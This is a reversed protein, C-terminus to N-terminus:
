LLKYFSQFDRKVPFPLALVTFFLYVELEAGARRLSGKIGWDVFIEGHREDVSISLITRPITEYWHARGSQSRM